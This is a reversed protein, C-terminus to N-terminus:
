RIPTIQEIKLGIRPPTPLIVTSFAKENRTFSLGNPVAALGARDTMLIQNITITEGPRTPPLVLRDPVPTIVRLKRLSMMEMRSFVTIQPNVSLAQGPSAPLAPTIILIKEGANTVGSQTRAIALALDVQQQASRPAEQAWASSTSAWCLAGTFLLLLKLAKM